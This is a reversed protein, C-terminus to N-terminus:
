KVNISNRFDELVKLVFKEEVVYYTPKRSFSHKVYEGYGENRLYDVEIRRIIKIIFRGEM